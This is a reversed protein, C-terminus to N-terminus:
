GMVWGGCVWKELLLHLSALLSSTNDVQLIESIIEFLRSELLQLHHFPDPEAM